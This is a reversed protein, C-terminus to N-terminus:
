KNLEVKDEDVIYVEDGVRVVLKNIDSIYKIFKGRYGDIIGKKDMVLVQTGEEVKSWDLSEYLEYNLEMAKLMANVKTLSTLYDKGVRITATEHKNLYTSILLYDDTQIIPIVLINSDRYEKKIDLRKM